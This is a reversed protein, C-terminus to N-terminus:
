RNRFVVYKISKKGKHWSYSIHISGDKTQLVAPYAFSGEGPASEEIIKNVPWTRGEDGSIALTLNHRGDELDNYVLCWDGNKLVLGTVSAGPNPIKMDEVPSWTEGRDKSLSKMIRAPPNGNDRMYAVLEGSKRALIVPQINGRGVIPTSPNWTHGNDDSIAVLSLNFGDSYLPLLIRGDALITPAIRTMWGMERKVADNAAEIIMKEYRPAYEAWTHNTEPLARFGAALDQRFKNTNKILVIDQWQWKPAGDKQFDTSIRYKLEAAEWRNARVVVWMLILRQDNDLYLIPNCDPYNPTDAMEFVPGWSSAGKKLRAGRIRVDDANREGSGEFWCALLSGDPCEVMSSSHVHKDQPPFILKADILKQAQLAAASFLMLVFLDFITKM